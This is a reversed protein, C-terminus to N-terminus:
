LKLQRRRRDRVLWYVIGFVVLAAPPGAINAVKLVTRTTDETPELPREVVKTRATALATDAALWDVMNHVALFNNAYTRDQHFRMDALAFDEVFSPFSAVLLRTEPPSEVVPNDVAAGEPVAKGEFFSKWKGVAAVAMLFPGKKDASSPQLKFDRTLAMVGERAIAVDSSAVLPTVTIGAAQGKDALPGVLEISSAWPAVIAQIGQLMERPGAQLVQGLPFLGVGMMAPNGPPILGRATYRADIITNANVKFGYSELLDGLGHDAPMGVYPQDAQMQPPMGQNGGSEWSIGRVLLLAPKGRMIFQDLHYKAADNVKRTPGNVILVDVADIEKPDKAWDVHVVEYIDGLGFKMGPIVERGDLDLVQTKQPEGFGTTIGIKKKGYGLRQIRSSFEYELGELSFGGQPTWVERKDLYQFVVHFYLRVQERRDSEQSMITLKDVGDKKLEDQLAPDDTPDIKEFSVRGNSADAYEELLAEIYRQKDEVFVPLNGFYAKVNVKEPLGRVMEKSASSLTYIRNETLDVQANTRCSVANLLILGAVAAVGTVLAEAATRGKAPRIKKDAAM